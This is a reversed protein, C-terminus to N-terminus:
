PWNGNFIRVKKKRRGGFPNGHYNKPFRRIIQLYKDFSEMPQLNPKGMQKTKKGICNKNKLNGYVSITETKSSFNTELNPFMKKICCCNGNKHLIEFQVSMSISKNM